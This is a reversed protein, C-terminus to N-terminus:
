ARDAGRRGTLNDARRRPDPVRGQRGRRNAIRMPSSADAPLADSMPTPRWLARCTRCRWFERAGNFRTRQVPGAAERSAGPQRRAELDRLTAGVESRARRSGGTSCASPIASWATQRTVVPERATIHPTRARPHRRHVSPCVPSGPPRPHTRDPSPSASCCSIPFISRL